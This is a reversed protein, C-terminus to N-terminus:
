TKYRTTNSFKVINHMRHIVDYGAIEPFLLYIDNRNYIKNHFNVAVVSPSYM